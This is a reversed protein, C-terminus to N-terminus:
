SKRIVEQFNSYVMYKCIIAAITSNQFETVTLGIFSLSLSMHNLCDWDVMPGLCSYRSDCEDQIGIFWRQWSSSQLGWSFVEFKSCLSYMNTYLKAEHVTPGIDLLCIAKQILIYFLHINIYTDLPICVLTLPQISWSIAILM